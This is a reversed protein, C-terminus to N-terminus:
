QRITATAVEGGGGWGRLALVIAKKLKRMQAEDKNKVAGRREKIMPSSPAQEAWRKSTCTWSGGRSARLSSALQM